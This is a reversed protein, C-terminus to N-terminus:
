GDLLANTLLDEVNTRKTELGREYIWALFEGVVEEDMIGWNEGTGFHPATAALAKTLDIKGDKAPVYKTFAAVAEEPHEQCYLYGQKTARLFNTYAAAHEDIKSEDAAIVPSYSYPVEYDKMRFYTLDEGMVEAEVGEWNLFIWTADFEGSLVTDWIGLKKPYRIMIEGAGGDNRILQRVIEDEYRAQYSSYSKGDLQKPRTIHGDGKVAIASLDERLLAAIAKLHFPTSKTRYSIISETPCLAFDAKGLEVKKAPTLQYDDASPDTITLDIGLDLYFDNEKAVFFGIHNINPTWDLALTLHQMTTTTHNSSAIRYQNAPM